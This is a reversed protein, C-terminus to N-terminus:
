DTKSKMYVSCVTQARENRIEKLKKIKIFFWYSQLGPIQSCIALLTIGLPETCLYLKKHDPDLQPPHPLPFVQRPLSGDAQCGSSARLAWPYVNKYMTATFSHYTTGEIEATGWSDSQLIPCSHLKAQCHCRRQGKTAATCHFCQTARYVQTCSIDMGGELSQPVYRGLISAYKDERHFMTKWRWGKPSLELKKEPLALFEWLGPQPKKCFLKQFVFNKLRKCGLM